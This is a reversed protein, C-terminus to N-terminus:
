MSPDDTPLAPVVIPSRRVPRPRWGDTPTATETRLPNANDDGGSFTKFNSNRQVFFLEVSGAGAPPEIVPTLRFDAEEPAAHVPRRLSPFPTNQELLRDDSWDASDENAFPMVRM